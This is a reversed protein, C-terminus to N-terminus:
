ISHNQCHSKPAETTFRIGLPYCISKLLVIHSADVTLCPLKTKHNQSLRKSKGFKERGAHGTGNPTFWKSLVWEPQKKPNSLAVYISAWRLLTFAKRNVRKSTEAKVLNMKRPKIEKDKLTWLQHHHDTETTRPIPIRELTHRHHRTFSTRKIVCVDVDETTTLWDAGLDFGSPFSVAVSLNIVLPPVRKSRLKDDGWICDNIRSDHAREAAIVDMELSLRRILRHRYRNPHASYM